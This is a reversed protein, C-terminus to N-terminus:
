FLNKDKLSSLVDSGVWEWVRHQDGKIAMVSERVNSNRGIAKVVLPWLRNRIRSSSKM